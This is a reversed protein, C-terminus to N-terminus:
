EKLVLMPDMQVEGTSGEGFRGTLSASKKINVFHLANLPLHSQHSPRSVM